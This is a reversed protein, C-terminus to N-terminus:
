QYMNAQEMLWQPDPANQKFADIIRSIRNKVRHAYIALIM